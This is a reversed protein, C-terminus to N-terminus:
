PLRALIEQAARHGSAIAGHVTGNHGNTDTAEGAFFLTDELPSGLAEQAGDSGVAGYSYAGRSFPDSQWDHFYAEDLLQALEEAGRNLLTGLTRLAQDIVFSRNKGSLREASTFPAWGTIIPLKAPMTTWWTPYWRDESFLFSMEGLTHRDDILPAIADWFRRRFRLTVRIVSGMELRKLAELKSGPLEPMFRVVGTDQFSAQLVGLPLTVLVKAAAFKCSENGRHAGIEAQGRSWRVSDVVTENQMGVGTSALEQRFVELLDEYGHMSRFARDGEITEEARMGQVLWHVGVRNPDAANFGTVYAVARRRAELQEPTSNSEPFRRELFSLFSEDPLRADMTTLIEDVQSFTDCNSLAGNGACWQEGTVETITTNRAQLPGWIESPLGHIFEAGFEIPTQFVPDRQTFMRGGIRNRAELLTVSLGSRQLTVAAALGAAGAGIIM